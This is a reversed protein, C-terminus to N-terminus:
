LQLGISAGELELAEQLMPHTIDGHIRYVRLTYTGDARYFAKADIQWVQDAYEIRKGRVMNEYPRAM